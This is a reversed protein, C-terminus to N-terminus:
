LRIEFFTRRIPNVFCWLWNKIILRILNFSLLLINIFTFINLTLLTYLILFYSFFIGQNPINLLYLIEHNFILGPSWTWQKIIFCSPPICQSLQIIFDRFNNMSQLFNILLIPRILFITPMLFLLFTNWEFFSIIFIILLLGLCGLILYDSIELTRSIWKM